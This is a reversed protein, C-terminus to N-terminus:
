KISSLLNKLYTSQMVEPDLNFGVSALLKKTINPFCVDCLDESHSSAQKRDAIHTHCCRKPEM